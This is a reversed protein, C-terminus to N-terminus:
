DEIVLEVMTNPSVCTVENNGYSMGGIKQRTQNIFVLTVGRKSVIGTLKRMAKSMMRAQLGIQQDIMEGDLEAQPTLAAVSDVVIMDGPGLLEALHQASSLAEEGSDPQIFLLEDVKVGLKTAYLIDLAHEVDLFACLGGFKQAASIAQLCTTTKGSSPQGYIEIIRGQPYGGVGLIRNLSFIGSPIVPIDKIIADKDMVMINGDGKSIKEYAQVINNIRDSITVVEEEKLSSKKSKAM